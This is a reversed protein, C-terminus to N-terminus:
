ITETRWEALILFLGILLAPVSAMTNGYLLYIFGNIILSFGAFYLSFGPVLDFLKRRSGSVILNIGAVLMSISFVVWMIASILDNSAFLSASKDLFNTLVYIFVSGMGVLGAAGIAAFLAGVIMTLTSRSKPALAAGSGSDNTDM